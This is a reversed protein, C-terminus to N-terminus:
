KKAAPAPAKPAAAAAPAAAKSAEQGAIEVSARDRLRKVLEMMAEQQLLQALMPKVEEFKPPKATRRDEVKIIHYGFQTKVAKETYKGPALDKAGVEFEPVMSGEPFYGLDGGDKASEKDQSMERAVKSFDEGAKLRTLAAEATKEDALLIHRAKTEKKDAPFKEKLEAYKKALAEETIKNKLEEIMFAQMLVQKKAQEIAKQVDANKELGAKLAADELVKMDVLQNILAQEFKKKDANKQAALEPPLGQELRNLEERTIPKGNVKAVVDSAFATSVLMLSLASTTIFTKVSNM